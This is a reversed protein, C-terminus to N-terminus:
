EEYIKNSNGAYRLEIEERLVKTLSYVAVQWKAMLSDDALIERMAIYISSTNASSPAAVAAYKRRGGERKLDSRIFPRKSVASLACLEEVAATM